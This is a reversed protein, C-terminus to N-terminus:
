RVAGAWRGGLRAACALAKTVFKLYQVPGVGPNPAWPGRLFAGLAGLGDRSNAYCVAFWREAVAQRLAAPDYVGAQQNAKCIKELWARSRELVQAVPPADLRELYRHVALEEPLPDIGLRGLLRRAIHDMNAKVADRRTATINSQHLRYAVLTEPLNLLRHQELCRNYLDYDEALAYEPAFRLQRLVEARAFFASTTIYCRFLFTAKVFEPSGPLEWVFKRFRGAADMPQTWSGVGAVDPHAELYARQRAFRQPFAIDDSDLFAIYRGRALDLGLNRSYILGRNVGNRVVRLRPDSCAALLSASGDTSGDDIAILEFDGDTQALVSAVAEGLYAQANYVPMIVSIDPM